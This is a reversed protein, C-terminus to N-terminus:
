RARTKKFTFRAVSTFVKHEDLHKPDYIPENSVSMCTAYDDDDLPGGFGLRKGRFLDIVQETLRMYPDIQEVEITTGGIFRQIGIDIGYAYEDDRRSLMTIEMAAPMVTLRTQTLDQVNQVPVYARAVDFGLSLSSGRLTDIISDAIEIAVAAM